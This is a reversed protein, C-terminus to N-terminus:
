GNLEVHWVTTARYAGVLSGPTGTYGLARRRGTKRPLAHARARTETAAARPGPQRAERVAVGPSSHQARRLLSAVGAPCGTSAPSSHCDHSVEVRVVIMMTVPCPDVPAFAWPAVVAPAYLSTGAAGVVLPVPRKGRSLIRVGPDTMASIEAIAGEAARQALVSSDVQREQYVRDRDTVLALGCGPHLIRRYARSGRGVAAAIHAPAGASQPRQRSRASSVSRGASGGTQRPSAPNVPM